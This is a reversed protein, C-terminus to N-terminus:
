VRDDVARGPSPESVAAGIGGRRRRGGLATPPFWRGSGLSFVHADTVARSRQTERRLALTERLRGVNWALAQLKPVRPGRAALDVLAYAAYAPLMTALRAASVNRLLSRLRNKCYHFVITPHAAGADESVNHLARLEPYVMVKHGALNLRWGIDSDEYGYFFAEDFGGIGRVAAARALMASCNIWIRPAPGQAPDIRGGENVDWALGMRGLDGGYANVAAANFAYLIYGGAAGLSPDARMRGLAREVWDPPLDIDSDLFLVFPTTTAALGTNRASAPGNPERRVYRLRGGWAPMLSRVMAETGDTSSNDVVVVQLAPVSQRALHELNRRLDAERNFTPIVATVEATAPDTPANM